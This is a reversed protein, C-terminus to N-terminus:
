EAGGRASLLLAVAAGGVLALALALVLDYGGVSWSLAAVTPAAATAAIFASAIRGNIAGFGDRGLRDAILVPRAISLVGIGAGQLLVFLTAIAPAWPAVLLAVSALFLAALTGLVVRDMAYRREVAVLALRGAVQMPGLCSAALVATELGLGRSTLLPLLHTVLMGHNLAIAAFLLGLWWFAPQRLAAREAQRQEVRLSARANAAPRPLSLILPLAVLLILAAFVFLSARWGAYQTVVYATPFSVTGAFGAFLTIRTIIRRADGAFTHTVYAFCADYLGGAMVLGLWAWVAYFQWLSEVQALLVLGLAGGVASSALLARGHGADVLRGAAPAALAQVILALSFAGALEAPSWGLQTKWTSLLAPFVYYLGAWVVAQSIGLAPVIGLCPVRGNTM